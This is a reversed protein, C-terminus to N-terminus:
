LYTTVRSTAASLFGNRLAFNKASFLETKTTLATVLWM